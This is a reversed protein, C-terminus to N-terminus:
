GRGALPSREFDALVARPDDYIALAGRLDDDGWGGCRLAVIRVGARLAAAVDYPTDGIMLLEDGRGLEARGASTAVVRRIREERLRLLLDRAGPTPVLRPLYRELFVAKKRAAIRAGVGEDEPEGSVEPILKDGGKGIRRLVDDFALSLGLDRGADVYARAHAENSDVLTGDVDLLVAKPPKM